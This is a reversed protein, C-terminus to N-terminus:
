DRPSPSTYLLCFLVNYNEAFYECPIITNGNYEFGFLKLELDYLGQNHIKSHGDQHLLRLSSYGILYIFLPMFSLLLRRSTNSFLILFCILLYFAIDLSTIGAVLGFWLWFLVSLIAFPILWNPSLRNISKKQSM